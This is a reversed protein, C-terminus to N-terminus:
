SGQGQDHFTEARRSRYKTCKTFKETLQRKLFKIKEIMENLEEEQTTYQAQLEFLEAEQDRTIDQLRVNEDRFLRIMKETETDTQTGVQSSSSTTTSLEKSRTIPPNLSTSVKFCQWIFMSFLIVYLALTVEPSLLFAVTEEVAMAKVGMMQSTLIAFALQKPNGIRAIAHRRSNTQREAQSKKKAAQFTMDSQLSLCHSRLRDAFLQRASHKTVGDAIQAESSVWKLRTKMGVMKQKTVMVEIKTRKDGQLSPTEAKLSDYLAKADVVLASPMEPVFSDVQRLQFDCRICGEWFILLYELADMAASSAQSEANLSSRSIRPLKFSRWDLIIYDQASGDELAQQNCLFILYGGQSENNRRVGWAADSMAIMSLKEMDGGLDRFILATDGNSKVFRLVKNAQSATEGTATTVEGCLLSISASLHPSTQTAPWQLAGLLARLCSQEKSNLNRNSDYDTCTMPKVGKLYEAQHLKSETTTRSLHCGCFELPKDETEEIWHKFNFADKLQQKLSEYEPHGDKGCGLLDDVHLGVMSILQKNSDHFTYLCQDLAHARFGLNELRRRAVIFWQRPADAQGYIPKILRMLTGPAVGIIECADKPIKAWLTREQPDGQLFATSVDATWRGWHSVQSIALLVQRSTRALTPSSTDLSGQLLDPDSFGQLVLRAKAKLGGKGDSAWKLVFRAKMVRNHDVATPDMEIEWIGNEFISTLEARKGELFALRDELTMRRESLDASEKVNKKKPIGAGVAQWIHGRGRLTKCRKLKSSMDGIYPSGYQQAGEQTLPYLTKGTWAENFHQEDPSNVYITRSGKQMSLGTTTQLLDKSIPFQEPHYTTTRGWVHNRVLFGDEFGWWDKTEGLIFENNKEDYHWREPLKTSKGFDFSHLDM